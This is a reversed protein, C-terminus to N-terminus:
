RYTYCESQRLLLPTFSSGLYAEEEGKEEYRSWPSFYSRSHRFYHYHSRCFCHYGANSPWGLRCSQYRYPRSISSLCISVIQKFKYPSNVRLTPGSSVIQKGM